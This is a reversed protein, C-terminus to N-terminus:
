FNGFYTLAIFLASRTVTQPPFATSSETEEELEAGSYICATLKESPAKPNWWVEITSSFILFIKHVSSQTEHLYSDARSGQSHDDHSYATM